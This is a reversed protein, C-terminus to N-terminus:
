RDDGRQPRTDVPSYAKPPVYPLNAGRMYDAATDRAAGYPGPIFAAGGVDLAEQPLGQLPAHGAAAREMAARATAVEDPTFGLKAAKGTLNGITASIAEKGFVKAAIPIAAAGAGKFLGPGILNSLNELAEGSARSGRPDVPPVKGPTEPFNAIPPAGEGRALSTFNPMLWEALANIVDLNQNRPAM